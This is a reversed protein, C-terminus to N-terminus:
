EGLDITALTIHEGKPHGFVELFTAMTTMAVTARDRNTHVQWERWYNGKGKKKTPKQWGLELLSAIRKEDLQDKKDLYVNGTAEAYIEPDDRVGLFQVFYQNEEGGRFILMSASFSVEQVIRLLEVIFQANERIAVTSKNPMMAAVGRLGGLTKIIDVICAQRRRYFMINQLKDINQNSLWQLDMPQLIVPIIRMKNDLATDLERKIEESAIANPSLLLIFAEANIIAETITKSWKEGGAIDHRDIWIKFGGAQLQRTVWDALKRDRRSYSIFIEGESNNTKSKTAM